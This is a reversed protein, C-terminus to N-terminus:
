ICRNDFSDELRNNIISILESYSQPISIELKSFLDTNLNLLEERYHLKYLAIVCSNPKFAKIVTSASSFSSLIIPNDYKEVLLEVPIKNLVSPVINVNPMSCVETYKDSKELLHPKIVINLSKFESALNKILTLPENLFDNNATIPQGIYLIDCEFHKFTSKKISMIDFLYKDSFQNNFINSDLMTVKKNIKAESPLMDPLFCRIEDVKTNRGQKIPKLNKIGCLYEIHKLFDSSMKGLITKSSPKAYNSNDYLALGEEILIVKGRPIIDKFADIVSIDPGNDRCIYLSVDKPKGKRLFWKKFYKKTINHNRIHQYTTKLKNGKYSELYLISSFLKNLDPLEKIGDRIILTMSNTNNISLSYYIAMYMSRINYVFFIKEM